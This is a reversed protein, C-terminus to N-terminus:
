SVTRPLAYPKMPVRSRSVTIMNRELTKQHVRTCHTRQRDLTKGLLEEKDGLSHKSPPGLRLEFEETRWCVLAMEALLKERSSDEDEM